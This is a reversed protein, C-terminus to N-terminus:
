DADAIGWRRLCSHFRKGLATRSLSTRDPWLRIVYPKSRGEIRLRVELEAYLVNLDDAAHQM